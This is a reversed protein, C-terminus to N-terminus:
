KFNELISIASKTNINSFLNENIMMTPSKDCNGLCCVPLLTFKNNKTTQGPCINLYNSLSKEINKYGNIYCVVGDCYRIINKGVPRRFIQSYFTAISEIKSVPVLLIKSIELMIDSSIWNLRRQVFKLSEIIAADSNNYKKIEKLIFKKEKVSLKKNKM